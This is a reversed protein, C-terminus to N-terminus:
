KKAYVSLRGTKVIFNTKDKFKFDNPNRFIFYTKGQGERAPKDILRELGENDLFWTQADHSKNKGFELEGVSNVLKVRRKTYFPIDQFFKSVLVIEDNDAVPPMSQLLYKSSRMQSITKFAPKTFFVFLFAFACLYALLLKTNKLARGSLIVFIFSLACLSLLVPKYPNIDNLTKSPLLNFYILLVGALVAAAFLCYFLWLCTIKKGSNEKLDFINRALIIATPAFCPIIYPALKSSSASFFLLIVFVWLSLFINNEKRCFWNKLSTFIFPTWVMVGGIFVPIFFWFPEYRDHLTTAYRLFHEQIFFFYFFDPNKKCMLYFPPVSILFFTLIAPSLFLKKLIDWRRTFIMFWFIVGAPLVVGILGKSLTGLALAAYFVYLWLKKNDKFYLYFSVLSFTIYFSVTMDIINIRSIAFYLAGTGLIFASLNATDEDYMRRAMLLSMFIGLLGLLCPWFRAAFENYGLTAFALATQWYHLPPKEFYLVYNLTPTFFDGSELMERPIESYRGEDINILGYSGLGWFYLLFLAAFLFYKLNKKDSIIKKLKEM